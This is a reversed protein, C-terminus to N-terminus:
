HRRMLVFMLVAISFITGEWLDRNSFKVIKGDLHKNHLIFYLISSVYCHHMRKILKTDERVDFMLGPKPHCHFSPGTMM